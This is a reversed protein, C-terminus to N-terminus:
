ENGGGIQKDLTMREARYRYNNEFGAVDNIDHMIREYEKLFTEPDDYDRIASAPFTFIIQDPVEFEAWPAPYNRIESKWQELDTQGTSLFSLLCLEAADDTLIGLVYRPAKVGNEITVEFDPYNAGWPM